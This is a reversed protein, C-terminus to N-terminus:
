MKVRKQAKQLNRLIRMKIPPPQAHRTRRRSVPAAGGQRLVDSPTGGFFSLKKDKKRHLIYSPTPVSKDLRNEMCQVDIQKHQMSRREYKGCDVTGNTANTQCECIADHDKLYGKCLRCLSVSSKPKNSRDNDASTPRSRPTVSKSRRPASAGGPETDQGSREPCSRRKVRDDRGANRPTRRPLAAAGGASSEAASKGRNEDDVDMIEGDEEGNENTMEINDQEDM